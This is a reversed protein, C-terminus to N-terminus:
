IKPGRSHPVLKMDTGMGIVCTIDKKTAIITWSNETPNMWVSITSNAFDGAKGTLVPFEKYQDKLSKFIEETNYCPLTTEVTDTVEQAYSKTILLCVLTLTLYIQKV